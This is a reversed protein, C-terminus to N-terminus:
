QLGFPKRAGGVDDEDEDRITENGLTRSPLQVAHLRSRKKQINPWREDDPRYPDWSNLIGIAFKITRVYEYENTRSARATPGPVVPHCTARAGSTCNRGRIPNSSTQNTRRQPLGSTEADTDACNQNISISDGHRTCSPNKERSAM